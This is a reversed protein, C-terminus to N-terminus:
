KKVNTRVQREAEDEAAEVTADIEAIGAVLRDMEAQDRKEPPEMEMLELHVKLIERQRLMELNQMKASNRAGGVAADQLVDRAEGLVRGQASVAQDHEKMAALLENHAATYQENTGQQKQRSAGGSRELFSM